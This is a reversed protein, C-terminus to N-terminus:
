DGEAALFLQRIEPFRAKIAREMEAVIGEVRAASVADDLNLV